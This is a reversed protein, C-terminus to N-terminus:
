RVFQGVGRVGWAAAILIGVYLGNGITSAFLFRRVPYSSLGAPISMLGRIGPIANTGCLAWGGFRDFNHNVLRMRRPGIKGQVRTPVSELYPVRRRLGIMETSEAEFGRYLTWQGLSAAVICILAALALTRRRPTVVTVYAVFLM